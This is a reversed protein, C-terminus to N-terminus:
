PQIMFRAPSSAAILAGRDDRALRLLAEDDLRDAICRVVQLHRGVAFQGVALDRCQDIPDLLAGHIGAVTAGDLEPPHGEVVRLFEPRQLWYLTWRHGGRFGSRGLCGVGDIAGNEGPKALDSQSRQWGGVFPRKDAPRRVVQGAQWWRGLLHFVEELVISRICEGADDVTQQGRRPVAFLPSSM